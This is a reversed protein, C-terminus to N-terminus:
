RSGMVWLVGQTVLRRYEPMQWNEHFHLGSFGFSRGGDPRTWAWAVTEKNGDIDVRLVPEPAPTSWKLAYYFEDRVKFSGLGRTVPHNPAASALTDVVKYKREPGGHCGGFLQAFADSNRADKTGMGWHLVALGGKRRALEQFAKLREPNNQLWKAGESLFVVVGDAKALLEPGERWPEDARVLTVQLDPTKELAKQLTQLGLVYEHTQPPHGDPGQALLLLRKPMGASLQGACLLILAGIVFARKM